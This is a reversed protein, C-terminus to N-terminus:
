KAPTPTPNTPLNEGSDEDLEGLLEMAPAYDPKLELSKRVERRAGDHDGRDNLAMGLLYRSLYSEADVAVAQQLSKVADELNGARYEVTGLNTLAFSDDPKLELARRFATIAQPYNGLQREAIGLNVSALYSQPAKSAIEAYIGRAEAFQRKQSLENAEAAREVLEPPLDSEPMKKVVELAFDSHGPATAMPRDFLKKEQPTLATEAGAM